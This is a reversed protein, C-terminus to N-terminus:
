LIYNSIYLSFIYETYVPPISQSLELNNMWDIGCANSWIDNVSLGAIKFNQGNKVKKQGKGVVQAYDGNLVSGNKKFRPASLIFFNITEFKRTKILPLNFMFGSLIIDPRLPSNLVNEILGPKQIEYMLKRIDLLQSSYLKGNLKHKATSNSFLQCPPSSHIFDFKNFNSKLFTLSDSQIFNFPYNPQKIIDIGTINVPISKKLCANYYGASAGGASCYLDLIELKKM